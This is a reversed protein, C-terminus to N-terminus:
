DDVGTGGGGLDANKLIFGQQKLFGQAVGGLFNGLVGGDNVLLIEALLDDKVKQCLLVAVGFGQVDDHSAAAQQLGDGAAGVGHGIGQQCVQLGAHLTLVGGIQAANQCALDAVLQAYGAKDHVGDNDIFQGVLRAQGTHGLQGAARNEVRQVLLCDGAAKGLLGAFLVVLQVQDDDMQAAAHGNACVVVTM